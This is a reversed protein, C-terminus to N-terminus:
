IVDTEDDADMEDSNSSVKDLLARDMETMGSSTDYKYSKSKNKNSSKVTKKSKSTKMPEPTHGNSTHKLIYDVGYQNSEEDSQEEQQEQQEPQEQQGNSPRLINPHPNNKNYGKQSPDNSVNSKKNKRQKTKEDKEAMTEAFTKHSRVKNQDTMEATMQDMQQQMEQQERHMQDLDDPHKRSQNYNNPMNNRSHQPPYSTNYQQQGSHQQQGIHQHQGSHQQSNNYQQQGINQQKGHTGGPKIIGRMEADDKKENTQKMIVWVLLGILVIVVLVILGTMWNNSFTSNESTTEEKTKVSGGFSIERDVDSSTSDDSNNNLNKSSRMIPDSVVPAVLLPKTHIQSTAM